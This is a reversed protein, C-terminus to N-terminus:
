PVVVDRADATAGILPAARAATRHNSANPPRRGSGAQEGSETAGDGHRIFSRSATVGTNEDIYSLKEEAKRAHGM